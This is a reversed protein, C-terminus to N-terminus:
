AINKQEMVYAEMTDGVAIDIKDELVVGCEFGAKVEKADDKMRKLSAVTSEAVLKEERMVRVKASRRIEGDLVFCGAIVGASSSKFLQRIEVHGIIKEEYVPALMGKMALEIDEIVKYIIDYSRVDVKEKEATARANPVLKSNFGIIIANSAIALDVDSENIDGVGSHIVRVKVEDNSIKELSDKVAEVSGVVDAKLVIPLEKLEGEKIQEYIDFLNLKKKSGEVMRQKNESIFTNAFDRAEKDGDCVVMIDGAQPVGNLGLIEVPCSPGATKIREGKDNSMARIRGYCSGMAVYDGMKLTGKQVLVRAIPGKGKDLEGEIVVGRAKRNPNAKLELVDASLLIMELLEKIGIKKKASVECFVTDGGWEESVLGEETLEKKVREVNAGEKDIKNIAVVITAGAARAHSIAEKTQPMVGDDAAVVLVAIDAGKAGRMRMATFAEHGPTDLFTIIRNNIEVQYAGIAQTIGGAEKETVNTQRIADLISTKGHDVHGMVCVVPPREVMQSEDEVDEELLKAIVDEKQELDCLINYEVAINSAEEYSLETNVVAMKGEMFLKKIIASPQIKMKKALDQITITEPIVIQKIEETNEEVKPKNTPVKKRYKNASFEFEYGTKGYKDQKKNVPKGGQQKKKAEYSKFKNEDKKKGVFTNTVGTAINANNPNFTAKKIGTKNFSVGPKQGQPRGKGAAKQGDRAQGRNAVTSNGLNVKAKSLNGSLGARSQADGKKIIKITTNGALDGSNLTKRQVPPKASSVDEGDKAIKKVNVEATISDLTKKPSKTEGAADSANEEVHSTIGAKKEQERKLTAAPLPNGNPSLGDKTEDTKKITKTSKKIKTLLEKNSESYQANVKISMGKLKKTLSVQKDEDKDSKTATKKIASTEEKVKTKKAKAKSFSADLIGAQEETIESSLKEVPMGADALLKRARDMDKVNVIADIGFSEMKERFKM